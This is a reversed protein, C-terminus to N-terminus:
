EGPSVAKSADAIFSELLPFLRHASWVLGFDAYLPPTFRRVVVGKPKLKLARRVDFVSVGAGNAVATLLHEPDPETTTSSPPDDGWVTHRIHDFYGPAQERPFTVVPLGRLDSVHLIRRRALPHDSPIAAALETAGLTIQALDDAELLPMRVFAADAEGARVMAINRVTWATEVLLTVKPNALRFQRVLLDPADDTLSRSHVIRLIGSRGEAAARVHAKVSEAQQLLPAGEAVLTRGSETLTVGSTTRHFLDVGLDKEFVRIQQSLGPQSIHLRESARRFHLEEAVIMFYELRRLDM